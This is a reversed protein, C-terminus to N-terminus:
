FGLCLSNLRGRLQGQDTITDLSILPERFFDLRHQPLSGLAFNSRDSQAYM